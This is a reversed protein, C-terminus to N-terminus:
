QEIIPTILLKSNAKALLRYNPISEKLYLAKMKSNLKNNNSKQSKKWKEIKLHIQTIQHKSQNSVISGQFYKNCSLFVSKFV